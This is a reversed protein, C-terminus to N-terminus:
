EQMCIVCIYPAPARRRSKTNYTNRIGDCAILNTAVDSPLREIGANSRSSSSNRRIKRSDPQTQSPANSKVEVSIAVFQRAASFHKAPICIPTYPHYVDPIHLARQSREGFCNIWKHRRNNYICLFLFLSPSLNIVTVNIYLSSRCSLWIVKGCQGIVWLLVKVRHSLRCVRSACVCVYICLCTNLAPLYHGVHQDNTKM